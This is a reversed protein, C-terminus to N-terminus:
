LISKFDVLLSCFYFYTETIGTYLRLVFAKHLFIKYYTLTPAHALRGLLGTFKLMTEGYTRNERKM